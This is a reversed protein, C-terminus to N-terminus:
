FRPYINLLRNGTEIFFYDAYVLGVDAIGGDVANPNNNVTSHLLITDSDEVATADQEVRALMRDVVERYKVSSDLKELLLMGSCAIMAASVDWVTPRPHDFDWYVIANDSLRSIFYKSFVHAAELFEPRKTYHYAIAYGHLAWAQGRSWCSSDKWGQHTLRAEVDGTTTNFVVLHYNSGDPRFQNKLTTLAHQTAIDAYKSNGTKASVYYLLELNMLNDVIVLFYKDPDNYSYAKNHQVNWSRIAGVTPNFRSSLSEATQILIDLSQKRGTLEYDRRFAPMMLFGVDHTNTNFQQDVIGAQWKYCLELLESEPIIWEDSYKSREYLAWLSGVFFGSTWRHAPYNVYKTTGVETYHPFETPPNSKDLVPRAIKLIKEYIDSSNLFRSSPTLKEAARSPKLDSIHDLVPEEIVSVPAVTM